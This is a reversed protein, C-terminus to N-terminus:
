KITVIEGPTISDLALQIQSVYPLLDKLRNSKVALIIISINFSKINQQFVLNQDNTIFVDFNKEALILLEGNKKGAWGAEPVTKVDHDSLEFKLKRPLCEDLLAKM